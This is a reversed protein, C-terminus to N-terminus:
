EIWSIGPCIVVPSTGIKFQIYVINGEKCEPPLEGGFRFITIDIPEENLNLKQEAKKLRRRIDRM